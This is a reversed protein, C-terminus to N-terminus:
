FKINNLINKIGHYISFMGMNGVGHSRLSIMEKEKEKKGLIFMYPIKNEESDRIKKNIKENRKDIVARIDHNLMLTLIKEAYSIYKDGIPLLIAQIPAMWLPFNGSTHEIIIGIIRELSGFPARHIMVPHYKNNDKGKYFLNFREPMNYDIQITGLQWNRGLSDKIMFDIKPGYFSAEGYNVTANIKSKEVSNLLIGEAKKWNEKSGIYCKNKKPDRLSIRVKYELFGLCKFVYIVLKIVKQVEELLQQNTCFIHADDQTFSRVRTLGHIEGSQEYRYVTGFEAFRQPLDRYSWSQSRFIECHHPCNMPKLLFEENKNPTQIPRFSDQGYQDWHGSQIYLEKNGIHPTMVMQYGNKKQIDILFNKLANKLITGKPLWLPLGVGVKDSFLFLKLKKGIKRHDINEKKKVFFANENM